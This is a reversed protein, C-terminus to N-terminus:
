VCRYGIHDGLTVAYDGREDDYGFNTKALHPNGKIKVVGAKGLFWVQPYQLVESQEYATLHESFGRLAQAPTIPGYQPTPATQGGHPAATSSGVHQEPATMATDQPHQPQQPQQMQQAM